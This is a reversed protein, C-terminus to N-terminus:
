QKGREYSINRTFIIYIRAHKEGLDIISKDRYNIDYMLDIKQGFFM